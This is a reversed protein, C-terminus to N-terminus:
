VQVQITADNWFHEPGLAFSGGSLFDKNLMQYFWQTFKQAFIDVQGPELHCVM